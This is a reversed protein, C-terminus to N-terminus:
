SATKVPNVLCGRRSGSRMTSSELRRQFSEDLVPSSSAVWLAVLECAVESSDGVRLTVKADGTADLLMRSFCLFINASIFFIPQNRHRNQHPDKLLSRLHRTSALLM